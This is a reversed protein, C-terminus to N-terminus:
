YQKEISLLISVNLTRMGCMYGRLCQCTHLCEMPILPYIFFSSGSETNIERGDNWVCGISKAWSLFERGDKKLDHIVFWVEKEDGCVDKFSTIKCKTNEM